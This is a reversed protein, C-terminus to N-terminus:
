RGTQMGVVKWVGGRNALTVTYFTELPATDPPAGDPYSLHQRSSIGRAVATDGYSTVSVERNEIRSYKLKGSSLFESLVKFPILRGTNLTWVFGEDTVAALAKADGSLFAKHFAAEAESARRKAEDETLPVRTAQWAVVRWEGKRKVFTGTNLFFDKKEKGGRSGDTVTNVLKFAVTATVGYQRIRVDEATYFSVPDGAQPPNPAPASRVGRMLEAKDIRRGGSGTYVLDDSWFRDHIKADNVSAGALFENLLKTIAATDAANQAFTSISSILILLVALLTKNM